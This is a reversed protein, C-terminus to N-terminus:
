RMALFETKWSILAQGIESSLTSNKNKSPIAVNFHRDGDDTKMSNNIAKTRLRERNPNAESDLDNSPGENTGVLLARNRM